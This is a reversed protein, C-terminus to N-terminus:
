GVEMTAVRYSALMVRCLADPLDYTTPDSTRILQGELYMVGPISIDSDSVTESWRGTRLRAAKVGEGLDTVIYRDGEPRYYVVGRDAGDRFMTRWAGTQARRWQGHHAIPITGLGDIALLARVDVRAQESLLYTEIETM